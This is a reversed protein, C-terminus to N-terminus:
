GAKGPIPAGVEANFRNLERAVGPKHPYSLGTAHVVGHAQLTAAIDEAGQRHVPWDRSEFYDWIARFIPEPFLHAHLDIIPQNDIAV